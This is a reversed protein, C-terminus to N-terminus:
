RCSKRENPSKPFCCCCKARWSDRNLLCPTAAQWYHRPMVHSAYCSSVCVCELWIHSLCKVQNRAIARRQRGSIIILIVVVAYNLLCFTFIICTQRNQTKNEPHKTDAYWYPQHKCVANPANQDWWRNSAGNKEAANRFSQSKRTSADSSMCAGTYLRQSTHTACWIRILWMYPKSCVFSLFLHIKLLLHLDLPIDCTFSCKAPSRHM